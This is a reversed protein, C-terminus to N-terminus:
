RLKEDRIKLYENYDELYDTRDPNYNTSSLALLVADKSFDKFGHWVYHPVNLADNAKLPIEELGKGYDITAVCTGKLLIFLENEIYHCHAGTQGQHDIAYYVRKVEFSVYEKLEIPVLTNRDSTFSKLTTKSFKNKDDM